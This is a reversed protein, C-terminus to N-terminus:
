RLRRQAVVALGAWTQPVAGRGEGTEPNWYEALGSAVAGDVLLRALQDAGEGRGAREVAVMALYGLQPWAPGRWYRDPDYSPEARHVGRPGYPAAFGDASLLQDFGDARPDVLLAMMADLTRAQAGVEDGGSGVGAVPDDSWGLGDWRDGVADALEEALETLPAAREPYASALEAANFAVLATFSVSGVTFTPNAVAHGEPGRVLAGVMASKTARWSAQRAEPDGDPGAVAPELWGDWRASDDCGTEWPHFVPVLGAPSRPRRALHLLGDAARGLVESPVARGRRILEAAVHGYMPPQTITSAGSRGWFDAHADPELWYTMHPVFGDAAQAALVNGLETVARDDGLADWVLAHFCSDWLWQHPYVEQNPVCFGPARWAARLMRGVEDALASQEIGTMPSRHYGPGAPGSGDQGTPEHAM